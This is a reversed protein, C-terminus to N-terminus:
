PVGRLAPPESQPRDADLLLRVMDGMQREQGPVYGVWVARVIGRRDILMTTPFGFSTLLGTQRAALLSQAQPDYWTPADFGRSNWLAQTQSRLSEVPQGPSDGYTALLLRFDPRDAFQRALDVLHPMEVLCFRCWPGWFNLLVVRGSQAAADLPEAGGTLPELPFATLPRGVAEHSTAQQEDFTPGPRLALWIAGVGAIVALGLWTLLSSRSPDAAPTPPDAM